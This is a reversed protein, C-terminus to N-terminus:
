NLAALYGNVNLLCLLFLFFILLWELYILFFVQKVKGGNLLIRISLDHSSSGYQEYEDTSSLFVNGSSGLNMWDDLLSEEINTRLEM